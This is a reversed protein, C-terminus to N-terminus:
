LRKGGETDYESADGSSGYWFGEDASIQNLFLDIQRQMDEISKSM